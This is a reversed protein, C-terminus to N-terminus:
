NNGKKPQSGIGALFASCWTFLKRKTNYGDTSVRRVGGGDTQIEELAVGGYAGSIHFNGLNAKFRGNEDKGYPEEPRNLARNIRLVIRELDKKTTRQSM